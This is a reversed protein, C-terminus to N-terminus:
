QGLLTKGSGPTAMIHLHKGKDELQPVIVSVAAIQSTRLKGSFGIAGFEPIINNALM